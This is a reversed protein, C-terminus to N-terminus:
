YWTVFARRLYYFAWRAGHTTNFGKGEDEAGGRCGLCCVWVGGVRWAVMGGCGRGGVWRARTRGEVEEGGWGWVRGVGWGVGPAAVTRIRAALM